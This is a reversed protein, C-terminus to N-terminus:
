DLNRSLDQNVVFLVTALSYFVRGIEVAAAIASMDRTGIPNLLDHIHQALSAALVQSMVEYSLTPTGSGMSLYHTFLAHLEDLLEDQTSFEGKMGALYGVEGVSQAVNRLGGKVSDSFREGLLVQDPSDICIALQAALGPGTVNSNLAHQVLSLDFDGVYASTAGQRLITTYLPMAIDHIQDSNFSGHSLRRDAIQFTGIGLGMLVSTPSIRTM